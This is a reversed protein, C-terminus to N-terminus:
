AIPFNEKVFAEIKEAVMEIERQPRSVFTAEEVHTRLSLFNFISRLNMTVYMESFLHVPLVGRALEKAIGYNLMKKYKDWAFEYAEIMDEIMANHQEHTGATFTPRASPGSQVINRDAGPIYFQPKLESYRGSVENYSAIRHRMFERFVMIPAKVYFTMANHEFPSGHREKMLYGVLGVATEKTIPKQDKRSGTSVKAAHVISLDDGMCNVLDVEVQTSVEIIDYDPVTM